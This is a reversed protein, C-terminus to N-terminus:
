GGVKHTNQSLPFAISFNHYGNHDSVQCKLDRLVNTKHKIHPELHSFSSLSVPRFCNGDLVRPSFSTPINEGLNAIDINAYTQLYM